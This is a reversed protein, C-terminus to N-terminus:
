GAVGLRNRHGVSSTEDKRFLGLSMTVLDASEGPIGGPSHTVTTAEERGSFCEFM